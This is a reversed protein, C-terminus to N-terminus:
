PTIVNVRLGNRNYYVDDWRMNRPTNFWMSPMYFDLPNVDSLKNLMTGWWSFSSNACVGGICKSMLNLSQMENGEFFVKNTLKEIFKFSRSYGIDNTLIVISTDYKNPMSEICKSYYEELNPIHHFGSGNLYDGGRIHLFYSPIVENDIDPIAASPLIFERILDVNKEFFKISQFYGVLNILVNTNNLREIVNKITTTYDYYLCPHDYHENINIKNMRNYEAIDDIYKITGFITKGGGDDKLLEKAYKHFHNTTKNAYIVAQIGLQQSISHLASLQFLVNGLQGMLEVSIKVNM